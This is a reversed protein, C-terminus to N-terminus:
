YPPISSVHGTLVSRKQPSGAGIVQISRGPDARAAAGGGSSGFGTVPDARGAAGAGPGGHAGARQIDAYRQPRAPAAAPAPAPAPARDEAVDSLASDSRWENARVLQATRTGGERAVGGHVAEAYGRRLREVVEGPDRLAQRGLAQSGAFADYAPMLDHGAGATDSRESLLSWPSPREPIESVRKSVSARWPLSVASAASASSPRTGEVERSPWVVNRSGEFAATVCSPASPKQMGPGKMYTTEIAKPVTCSVSYRTTTRGLALQCQCRGLPKACGDCMRRAQGMQEAATAYSRGTVAQYGPLM